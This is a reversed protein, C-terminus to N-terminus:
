AATECAKTSNAVELDYLEGALQAGLEAYGAESPHYGDDAFKGTKPDFDILVHKCNAFDDITDGLAEDLARGRLGFVARLPQPLLPFGHLPPLGVYAIQADPSHARLGNHLEAVNRPWQPLTTLGTVDNVGMSVVIFDIPSVPLQPLLGELIKTSTYGSVGLAQWHVRCDLSAALASATQGVMAKPLESAGVGAVISDGIALLTRPAGEGVAGSTPGAAPAFRPATQRVYLAQPLLFPLASWFLANRM